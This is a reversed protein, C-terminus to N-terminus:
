KSRLLVSVDHDYHKIQIKILIKSIVGGGFAAAGSSWEAEPPRVTGGRGMRVAASRRAPPLVATPAGGRHLPLTVNKEFYRLLFLHQEM